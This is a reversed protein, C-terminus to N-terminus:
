GGGNTAPSEEAQSGSLLPFSAQTCATSRNNSPTFLGPQLAASKIRKEAISFYRQDIECGIFSRGLQVCAVGTTGSGMFPDFVTEGESSWRSVLYSFLDLPKQWKHLGNMNDFIKQTFTLVDNGLPKLPPHYALIPEWGIHLCASGGLSKSSMRWCYEWFPKQRAIWNFSELKGPTLVVRKAVRLFEPLMYSFDGELYPPDTVICDVSAPQMTKMYELCDGNHLTFM